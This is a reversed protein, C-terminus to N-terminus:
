CDAFRFGVAPLVISREVILRCDVGVFTSRKDTFGIVM